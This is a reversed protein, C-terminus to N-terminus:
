FLSANLLTFLINPTGYRPMKSTHELEYIYYILM